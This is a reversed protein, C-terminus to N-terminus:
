FDKLIIEIDGNVIVIKEIISKLINNKGVKDINGWVDAIKKIKEYQIIKEEKNGQRAEEEELQMKADKLEKELESIMDVVTDNGDSYINYLRKLKNKLSDVRKTMMIIKDNKNNFDDPSLELSIQLIKEEVQKEIDVAWEHPNKCNPNHNPLYNLDKNRSCCYIKHGKNGWKQYRMACGCEGCYCLGTLLNAEFQVYKRKNRETRFKLLEQFEEETFVPEHLGKYVEGKYPIMGANVLSTLNKRVIMESKFGLLERIRDDSYGKLFLIRANRVQEVREPIQLLFGSEKNYRYCYPTNGGGMWYGKKVRELMGGRMRLMMTNKDLQSFVAMMQTYAQEMPSEYNVSDHVCKFDVGNPLFIKEIIYLGDIMNRSLRDLKFAIVNKIKKNYCDSILRQLAPRNMNSGTYGDDVYWEKIVFENKGAYSLIDRKQSDLGNGEEAQKETSVRMYAVCEM